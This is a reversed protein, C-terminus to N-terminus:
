LHVKLFFETNLSDYKKEGRYSPTTSINPQIPANHLNARTNSTKNCKQPPTYDDPKSSPGAGENVAYCAATKKATCLHKKFANYQNFVEKCRDCKIEPHKLSIHRSLGSRHQLILDCFPCKLQPTM